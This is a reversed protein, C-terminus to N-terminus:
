CASMELSVSDKAARAAALLSSLPHAPNEKLFRAVATLSDPLPACDYSRYSFFRFGHAYLTQVKTWQDVDDRRPARFSRGMFHAPGGCTSCRRPSGDSTPARKRSTRCAFCAHAVLYAPSPRQAISPVPKPKRVGLERHLEMRQAKATVRAM